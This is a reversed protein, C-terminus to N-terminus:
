RASRRRTATIRSTATGRAPSASHSPPSRACSSRAAPGSCPRRRASRRRSTSRPCSRSSSAPATPAAARSGPRRLFGPLHALLDRLFSPLYRFSVDRPAATWDARLDSVHSSATSLETRSSGSSWLATLGLNDTFAKQWWASGHRSRRISLGYSASSASPRRLGDLGSALVDTGNLFYPDQSSHDLRISLPATLGLRELGLRDLRITSGLGFQNTGIYSPNEGLQRFNGDRQSVQVNLTAIDAATLDLSVAGAYGPDNVVGSLRIDDVWVKASDTAAGSDRVFGVAIEQVQTLNPPSIAPNRVHVVYPGSCAVYALTDGGCQAAGSPPDGRLFRREILARLQFWVQFDVVVEPLWTTSSANTRYMYFDNENQGAKVFFSLRKLDWDSGHGRAWM